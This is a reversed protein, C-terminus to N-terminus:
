ALGAVGWEQWGAFRPTKPLYMTERREIRFGAAEIPGAIERTLHCGGAIAKWVPELRRQWRVM